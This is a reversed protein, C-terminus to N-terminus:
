ESKRGLSRPSQPARALAVAALVAALTFVATRLVIARLSDGRVLVVGNIGLHALVGIWLNRGGREMLWAIPLSIGVIGLLYLVADSASGGVATPVHWLAWAMGTWLGAVLPGRREALRPYLFGRWGLEEGLPPVLLAGFYPLALAPRAGGAGADVLVAILVLLNAGVLALLAPALSPATGLGRLVRGHTLVLAALSPGLGAVGLAALAAGGAFVGTFVLIQLPWTFLLALAVFALM